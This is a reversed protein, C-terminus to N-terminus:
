TDTTRWTIYQDRLRIISRILIMYPVLPHLFFIRVGTEYEATEAQIQVDTQIMCSVCPAFIYLLIQM